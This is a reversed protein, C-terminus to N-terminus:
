VHLDRAAWSCLATVVNVRSEMLLMWGALGHYARGAPSASLLERERQEVGCLALRHHTRVKGASFQRWSTSSLFPTVNLPCRTSQSLKIFTV